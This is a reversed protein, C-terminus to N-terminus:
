AMAFFARAKEMEALANVRGTPLIDPLKVEVSKQKEMEAASEDEERQLRILPELAALVSRFSVHGMDKWGDLEALRPSHNHGLETQWVHDILGQAAIEAASEPQDFGRAPTKFQHVECRQKLRSEFGSLDNTTFVVVTKEPLHELVDLFIVSAQKSMADAENCILVKWGSGFFPRYCLTTKFMERVTAANLEGSAVEFLGGTALPKVTFDCGLDRALAYAASTKGCGPPGSFIFAKATPKRAFSQLMKVIMPQGRLEDLTQPRYKETLAKM